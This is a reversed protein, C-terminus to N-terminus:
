GFSLVPGLNHIRAGHRAIRLPASELRSVGNRTNSFQYNRHKRRGTVADKPNVRKLEELMGKALRDYVLDNTYHGVVSPMKGNDWAWGKLRFMEKYLALPFTETWKYLEGDIYKKLIEALAQRDRVDQYGTAEDVLANIGVIAFGRVLIECQAVIHEQQKQLRDAKGSRSCM